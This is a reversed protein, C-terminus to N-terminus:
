VNSLEQLLLKYLSRRAHAGRSLSNGGVAVVRLGDEKHAKYDLSAAGRKQNVSRVVIPLAAKLLSKLVVDHLSEIQM